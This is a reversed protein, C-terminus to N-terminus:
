PQKKARLAADTSTLQLGPATTQAASPTHASPWPINMQAASPMHAQTPLALSRTTHRRICGCPLAGRRVPAKDGLVRAMTLLTRPGHATLSSALHVLALTTCNTGLTICNTGPTKCNTGSAIYLALTQCNTGPPQATQAYPKAAQALANLQIGPNPLKHRSHQLETPTCQMSYLRNETGEKARQARSHQRKQAHMTNM